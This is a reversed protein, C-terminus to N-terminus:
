FDHYYWYTSGWANEIDRREKHDKKAAVYQDFSKSQEPGPEFEGLYPLEYDQNIFLLIAEEIHRPLSSYDMNRMKKVQHVASKFDKELLLRALKYEFAIKNDPNSMLMLDINLVENQSFFFDKRPALKAKAGLEPDALVMAPQHLMSEYKEAWRRYHLSKKLIGIHRQASRYNGNILDTKILMKLNEPRYGNIVMSEYARHHAENIFGVTYYYYMSRDIYDRSSHILLSEEGFDQCGHFM